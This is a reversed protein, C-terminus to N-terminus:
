RRALRLAGRMYDKNLLFTKEGAPGSPDSIPRQACRLGTGEMFMWNLRQELTGGMVSPPPWRM